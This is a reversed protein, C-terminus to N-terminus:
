DHPAIAGAITIYEAVVSSLAYDLFAQAQSSLPRNKDTVMLFPRQLPYQGDRVTEPRCPIGELSILKVINRTGSLSVYGIANPNTSVNGVIDGNASYENTYRCRDRSELLNEFASRTGSGAERGYAAIPSDNGGLQAWNTIEGTFIQRLQQISLDSVPNQPHVIVAICDLAILHGEAGDAMESEKLDRSSLGIDCIGSLVAEIGAGSGTGSYNIRVDSNIERYGELLAGVVRETSTSGDLTITNGSAHSCASLSPILLAMCLLCSVIRKM